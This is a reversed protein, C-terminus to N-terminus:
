FVQRINLNIRSTRIYDIFTQCSLDCSSFDPLDSEKPDVFIRPIGHFCGRAPGAMLVVDGSRLFMATPSDERSPGGLLFIAKCGFSISVIPKSWDKEMDDLHGGLMDDCGFYNVIAAEAHFQSNNMAPKALKSALEYLDQPIKNHPLSLDYARKSWDFQLGLTAWRLKRLLNKMPIVMSHSHKNSESTSVEVASWMTQDLAQPTVTSHSAHKGLMAPTSNNSKETPQEITEGSQARSWLDSIPGYTATHNTRNPPQPFTTLSEEIWHMQEEVGLAEPIFYFGPHKEMMFVPWQLGEDVRKIGSEKTLRSCRIKRFDLVESLDTPPVSERHKTSRASTSSHKYFKYRKEARRFATREADGVQADLYGM